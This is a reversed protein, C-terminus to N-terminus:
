RRIMQTFVLLAISAVFAIGFVIILVWAWWPLKKPPDTYEYVKVPVQIIREIIRTNTDEKCESQVFVSDKHVIVQTRLREKEIILTDHIFGVTDVAIRESIFTVTDTITTDKWETKALYPHRTLLRDLRHKPTCSLTLLYVTAFLIIWYIWRVIMALIENKNSHNAM